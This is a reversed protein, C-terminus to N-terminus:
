AVEKKKMYKEVSKRFQENKRAAIISDALFGEFYTKWIKDIMDFDIKCYVHIQGKEDIIPRYVIIAKSYYNEVNNFKDVKEFLSDFSLPVVEINKKKIYDSYREHMALNMVRQMPYNCYTSLYKLNYRESYFEFKSIGQKYASLIDEEVLQIITKKHKQPVEAPIDKVAKIM